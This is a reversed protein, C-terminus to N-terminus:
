ADARESGLVELMEDINAVSVAVEFGSRLVFVLYPGDSNCFFRRKGDWSLRFGYGGGNGNGTLYRVIESREITCRWFGTRSRISIQGASITTTFVGLDRIVIGMFVLAATLVGIIIIKRSSEGLGVSIVVGVLAIVVLAIIIVPTTSIKSYQVYVM